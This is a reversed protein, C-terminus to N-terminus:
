IIIKRKPGKLAIRPPIPLTASFVTGTSVGFDSAQSVDVGGAAIHIQLGGTVISHGERSAFLNNFYVVVALM